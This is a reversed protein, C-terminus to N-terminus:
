PYPYPGEQSETTAQSGNYDTAPPPFKLSFRGIQGARGGGRDRCRAGRAAPNM